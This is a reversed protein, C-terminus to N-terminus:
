RLYVTVPDFTMGCSGYCDPADCGRCRRIAVDLGKRREYRRDVISEVQARTVEKAGLGIADLRQMETVLYGWDEADRSNPWARRGLGKTPDNFRERPVGLRAAFAHLEDKTDALLLSWRGEVTGIVALRLTDDVYVTM